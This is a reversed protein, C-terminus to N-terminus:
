SYTITTARDSWVNNYLSDGSAWTKTLGSSTDLRAIQWVAAGEASGVPAKGIYTTNATTTDDIRVALAVSATPVAGQDLTVNVANGGANIYPTGNGGGGGGSGFRKEAIEKLHKNSQDLKKEVKALDTKPVEPFKPIEVPKQKNIAKLLDLMVDQLPKLNTKEVNVVPAKVDVKLDLAKVAKILETTDLKVDDLNSVKISDKQEIQPAHSKPILSLERKVGNMAELLPKLDIRSDLVDQDLKSLAVVVKDVDPTSISKLQNIVETKTTKGDMYKILHNFAGIMTSQLAVLQATRDAYQKDAQAKNAKDEYFQRLPARKDM